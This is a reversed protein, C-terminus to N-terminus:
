LRHTSCTPEATPRTLICVPSEYGPVPRGTFNDKSYYKFDQKIGPAIDQLYEFDKPLMQKCYGSNILSVILCILYILFRM